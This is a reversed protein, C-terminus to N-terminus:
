DSITLSNVNDNSISVVLMSLASIILINYSASGIILSPGLEGPTDGLRKISEIIALLIQPSYSALVMLIMNAISQNWIKVRVEKTKKAKSYKRFLLSLMLLEICM